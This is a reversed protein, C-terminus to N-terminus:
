IERPMYDDNVFNSRLCLDKVQPMYPLECWTGAFVPCEGLATEINPWSRFRHALMSVANPSHGTNASVSTARELSRTLSM